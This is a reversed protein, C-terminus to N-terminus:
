SALHTTRWRSCSSCGARGCAGNRHVAGLDGRYTLQRHPPRLGTLLCMVETVALSAVVGNISIVSPGSGDLDHRSIGYQQDHIQQLEPPMQERALEHQDILGLCDPCGQGDSAVVIRGGFIVENDGVSIIETALDVYPVGSLSCTEIAMLRPLEADFAGIVVTATQIARTISEDPLMLPLVHIEAEPQVSEILRAAIDVKPKGVDDSLAGILRNLNSINVTDGDAITWRRIGLYALQQITHMGLGGAGIQFVHAASIRSQGADGFLAIQRKYRDTM